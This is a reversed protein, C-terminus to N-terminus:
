RPAWAPCTASGRTSMGFAAAPSPAVALRPDEADDFPPRLKLGDLRRAVDLPLDLHCLPQLPLARTECGSSTPSGLVPSLTLTSPSPAAM